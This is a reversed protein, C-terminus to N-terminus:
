EEGDSLEKGDDTSNLNSNDENDFSEDFDDGFSFKLKQADLKVEKKEVYLSYIKNLMDLAKLSSARDKDELAEVLLDELREIQIIKSKEIVEDSKEALLEYAEKIYASACADGVNFTIKLWDMIKSRSWGKRIRKIVESIRYKRQNVEVGNKPTRDDTYKDKPKDKNAM